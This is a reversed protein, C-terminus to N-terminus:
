IRKQILPFPFNFILGSNTNVIIIYSSELHNDQTTVIQNDLPPQSQGSTSSNIEKAKGNEGMMFYKGDYLFWKHWNKFFLINKSFNHIERQKLYKIVNKNFTNRNEVIKEDDFLPYLEHLCGILKISYEGRFLEILAFFNNGEKILEGDNLKKSTKVFLFEVGRKFKGLYNKDEESEINFKTSVCKKLEDDAKVFIQIAKVVFPSRVGEAHVYILIIYNGKEKYEACIEIYNWEEFNLSWKFKTLIVKNTYGNIANENIRWMRMIEKMMENNENTEM